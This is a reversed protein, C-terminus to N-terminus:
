ARRQHVFCQSFRRQTMWFFVFAMLRSPGDIFRGVHRKHEHLPRDRYLWFTGRCRGSSCPPSGVVPRASLSRPFCGSHSSWCVQAVRASSSLDMLIRQATVTGDCRRCLSSFVHAGRQAVLYLVWPCSRRVTPVQNKSHMRSSHATLFLESKRLRVERVMRLAFRRVLHSHWTCRPSM